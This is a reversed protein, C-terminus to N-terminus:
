PRASAGATVTSAPPDTQQAAGAPRAPPPPKKAATQPQPRSPVSSTTLKDRESILDDTAQKLQDSNMPTEARPTPMDHVAPFAPGPSAMESSCGSLLLSLAAAVALACCSLKTTCVNADV